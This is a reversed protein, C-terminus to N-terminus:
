CLGSAAVLLCRGSMRTVGERFGVGAGVGEESGLRCESCVEAKLLM